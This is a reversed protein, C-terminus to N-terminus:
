PIRSLALAIDVPVVLREAVEPSQALLLRELASSTGPRRRSVERDPREARESVIWKRVDLGHREAWASIGSTLREAEEIPLTRSDDVYLGPVRYEPEVLVFSQGEPRDGVVYKHPSETDLFVEANDVVDACFALLVSRPLKRILLLKHRREIAKEALDERGAPVVVVYAKAEPDRVLSVKPALAAVVEGLQRPEGEIPWLGADRLEEGLDSLLLVDDSSAYHREVRSQIDEPTM